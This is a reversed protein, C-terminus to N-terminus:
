FNDLLQGVPNAFDETERVVAKGKESLVITYSRNDTSSYDKLILKKKDLVKVADSITPKTVNFENALASVNNWGSKHHAVFILLQIQIPSLGLLKAKDWLLTKFAQSVRELGATIKASLDAQQSEPDFAKYKKM